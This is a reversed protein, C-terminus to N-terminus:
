QEKLQVPKHLGNVLNKILVIQQGFLEMVDYDCFPSVKQLDMFTIDGNTKAYDIIQSIYTKQMDELSDDGLISAFKTQVAEDAIGVMLRLQVLLPKGGRRLVRVDSQFGVSTFFLMM